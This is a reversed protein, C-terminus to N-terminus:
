SRGAPRAHVTRQDTYCWMWDEGAELTRVVQHLPAHEEAHRSAHQNKSSDCCLVQGDTMCMRLHVWRDGLALCQQCGESAPTVDRIQDLHRCAYPDRDRDRWLKALSGM